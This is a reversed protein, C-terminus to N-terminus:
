KKPGGLAFCLFSIQQSHQKAMDINKFFHSVKADALMKKYFIGVAATVAEEGGIREYLSKPANAAKEAKEAAPNAAGVKIAGSSSSEISMCIM